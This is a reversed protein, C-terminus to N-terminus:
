KPEAPSPSDSPVCRRRRCARRRSKSLRRARADRRPPSEIQHGVMRQIEPEGRFVQWVRLIADSEIAVAVDNEAVLGVVVFAVLAQNRLQLLRICCCVLHSTCPWSHWSPRNARLRKTPWRIGSAPTACWFPVTRKPFSGLVEASSACNCPAHSRCGKRRRRAAEEWGTARHIWRQGDHGIRQPHSIVQQLSHIPVLM